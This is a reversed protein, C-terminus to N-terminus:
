DTTSYYHFPHIYTIYLRTVLASIPIQFVPLLGWMRDDKLEGVFNDLWAM